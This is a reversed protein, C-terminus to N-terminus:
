KGSGTRGLLGILQGPAVKFSLNNLVVEDNSSYCIIIIEVTKERTVIIM